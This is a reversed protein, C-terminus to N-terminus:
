IVIEPVDLTRGLRASEYALLVIELTERAAEPGFAPQAKGLFCDLWHGIGAQVSTDWWNEPVDLPVPTPADGNRALLIPAKPDFHLQLSADRFYLWKSERWPDSRVTYSVAVEALMHNYGLTVAVNDDAKNDPVVLFRGWQCSIRKPRGFWWLLLDLVHTGSDALAGGGAVDWTGKWNEPANMRDFENGFVHAVAFFPPGLEGGDMLEKVKLHAPYFRQNLAVHFQRNAAKAAAIMRDAEDLAIAIPKELLVHKGASLADLVAREHMGHPLCIDVADIAPDELLRRYDAYKAAGPFRNAVTERYTENPDAVAAIRVDGRNEYARAHAHQFVLGAGIIGMRLM